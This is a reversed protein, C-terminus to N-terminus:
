TVTSFTILFIESFGVTFSKRCPRGGGSARSARADLLNSALPCQWMAKAKSQTHNYYIISDDIYYM